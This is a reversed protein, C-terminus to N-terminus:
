EPFWPRATTTPREGCSRNQSFSTARAAGNLTANAAATLHAFSSLSRLPNPANGGSGRDKVETPQPRVAHRRFHARVPRPSLPEFEVHPRYLTLRGRCRPPRYLAACSSDPRCPHPLCKSSLAGVRPKTILESRGCEIPPFELAPADRDRKGGAADDLQSRTDPLSGSAFGAATQDQAAPFEQQEENVGSAM